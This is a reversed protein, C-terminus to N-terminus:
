GYSDRVSQMKGMTDQMKDQSKAGNEHNEPFHRKSASRKTRYLEVAVPLGKGSGAITM